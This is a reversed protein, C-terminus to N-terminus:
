TVSRWAVVPFLIRFLGASPRADGRRACLASATLREFTGSEMPVAKEQPSAPQDRDSASGPAETVIVPSLATARASTLSSPPSPESGRAEPRKLALRRQM